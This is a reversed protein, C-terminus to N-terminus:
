RIYSGEGNCAFGFAVIKTSMECFFLATFFLDLKKLVHALDSHEDLRPSDLALCISSVIIATIVIQDFQPQKLAWRCLRRAPSQPGFLYLSHDEPWQAVPSDELGAAEESHRAISGATEEGSQSTEGGRASGAVSGAASGGASGRASSKPSGRASNPGSDEEQFETLIVAVLLNM